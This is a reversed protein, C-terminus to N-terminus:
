VAAAKLQANERKVEEMQAQLGMVQLAWVVWGNGASVM